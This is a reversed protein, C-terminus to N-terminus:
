AGMVFNTDGNDKMATYGVDFSQTSYMICKANFFSKSSLVSTVQKNSLNDAYHFSGFTYPNLKKTLNEKARKYYNMFLKPTINEKARTLMEIFWAPDADIKRLIDDHARDQVQSNEYRIITAAGWGLVESFEKQSIKYKDRIRKIDSSTLLGMKVRYADKLALNNIKLQEENESYSEANDCFEYEALYHISENKFTITEEIQVYKVTHVEMCNFCLKEKEYIIKM